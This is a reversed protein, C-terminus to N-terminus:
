KSLSYFDFAYVSIYRWLQQWLPAKTDCVSRAYLKYAMHLSLGRGCVKVQLLVDMRLGTRGNL